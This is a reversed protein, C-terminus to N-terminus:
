IAGRLAYLYGKPEKQPTTAAAEMTRFRREGVRCDRDNTKEIQDPRINSFASAILPILPFNGARTMGKVATRNVQKEVAQFPEDGSVQSSSSLVWRGLEHDRL